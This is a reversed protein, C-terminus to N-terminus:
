LRKEIRQDIIENFEQFKSVEAYVMHSYQSKFESLIEELFPRLKKELLKEFKKEKDLILYAYIDVPNKQKNIISDKTFVINKDGSEFFEVSSGFKEAFTLISTMYACKSITKRNQLTEETKTMNLKEYNRCIIPIGGIIIGIEKIDM